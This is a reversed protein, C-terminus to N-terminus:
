ICLQNKLILYPNRDVLASLAMVVLMFASKSCVAGCAM